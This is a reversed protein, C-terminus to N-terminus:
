EKKNDIDDIGTTEQKPTDYDHINEVADLVKKCLEISLRRNDGSMFSSYNSYNVSIEELLPKMKIFKSKRKIDNRIYAKELNNNIAKLNALYNIANLRFDMDATQLLAKYLQQFIKEPLIKESYFSNIYMDLIRIVGGNENEEYLYYRLTDFDYINYFDNHYINQYKYWTSLKDFYEDSTMCLNCTLAVTGPSCSRFQLIFINDDQYKNRMEDIYEEMIDPLAKDPDPIYPISYFRDIKGYINYLNRPTLLFNQPLGKASFVGTYVDHCVYSNHRIVYRMAHILKFAEDVCVVVHVFTNQVINKRSVGAYIRAMPKLPLIRKKSMPICYTEKGCLLCMDKKAEKPIIKEEFFENYKKYLEDDLLPETEGTANDVIYIIPTVGDLHIHTKIDKMDDKITGKKIYEYFIRCKENGSYDIFSSLLKFFDQEWKEKVNMNKINDVIPYPATNSSRNKSSITTPLNLLKTEELGEAKIFNSDKDIYLNASCFVPATYLPIKDTLCNDYFEILNLMYNDISSM